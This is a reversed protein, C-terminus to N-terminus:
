RKGSFDVIQEVRLLKADGQSTKEVRGVIGVNRYLYDDLKVDDRAPILYYKVPGESTSRLRFKAGAPAEVYPGVDELWGVATYHSRPRAEAKRKWIEDLKRKQKEIEEDKGALERKLQAIRGELRKMEQEKRTREQEIRTLKEELAKMENFVREYNKRAREAEERLAKLKKVWEEETDGSPPAPREVPKSGNKRGDTAVYKASIWVAAGKPPRVLFWRGKEGVIWVIDDKNVQMIVKDTVETGSRVNVRNGLVTGKFAGGEAAGKNVFPKEIIFVVGEPPSIKFWDGKRDLIRVKAGKSLQILARYKTDPGCRVNVKDGTLVGDKPFEPKEPTEEQAALTAWFCVLVSILMTRSMKGSRWVAYDHFIINRGTSDTL